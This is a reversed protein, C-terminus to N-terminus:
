DQLTTLLHMIDACPILNYHEEIAETKEQNAELKELYAEMKAKMKKLLAKM